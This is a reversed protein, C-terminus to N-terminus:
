REKISKRGEKRAQHLSSDRKNSSSEKRFKIFEEDTENVENLVKGLPASDM